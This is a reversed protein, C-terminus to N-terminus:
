DILKFSKKINSKTNRKFFIIKKGDKIIEILLKFICHSNSLKENLKTSAVIKSENGKM